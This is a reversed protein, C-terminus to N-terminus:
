LSFILQKARERQQKQHHLESNCQFPEWKASGFIIEMTADVNHRQKCQKGSILHMQTDEKTHTQEWCMEGWCGTVGACMAATRLIQRGGPRSSPVIIIIVKHFVGGPRPSSSPSPPWSTALLERLSRSHRWIIPHNGQNLWSQPQNPTPPPPTLGRVPTEGLESAQRLVWNTRVHLLTSWSQVWWAPTLVAPIFVDEHNQTQQKQASTAAADGGM